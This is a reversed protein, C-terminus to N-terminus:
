NEKREKLVGFDRGARYMAETNELPTGPALNNGERLVFLGGELVGSQLIERTREYVQEPTMTRLFEVHPGGNIRIDPGLQRRIGGFDIPFGTDFAAIHLEDRLVLFHRSADGCLHISREKLTAFTDYLKQHHPLIHEKYMKLSILAISDDACGWGDVPYKIGLRDRWAKMRRIIAENIFGLLTQLREPESAMATCVFTPSFLSCAATMPGDYGLACWPPFVEIPRDLYTETEARSKFHEYYELAKQMLGGFPDPYGNEMVKEPCEQFVPRTDPVEGKMYVVPCGLWAADYFNQFDVGVGWKDPLGLEQDQLVNFRSWRAFRLLTEFMVDPNEMYEQFDVGQPNADKNKFFYRSNLGLIVPVRYPTRDWYAKWLRAVEENHRKFDMGGLRDNESFGEM